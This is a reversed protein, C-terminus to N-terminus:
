KFLNDILTIYKLKAKLYIKSNIFIIKKQRRKTILGFLEKIINKIKLLCFNIWENKMWEKM